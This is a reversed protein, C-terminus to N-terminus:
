RHFRGAICGGGFTAPGEVEVGPPTVPVMQYPILKPGKYEHSLDYYIVFDNDPQGLQEPRDCRNRLFLDVIEEGGNPTLVKTRKESPDDHRRSKVIVQDGPFEILVQIFTAFRRPQGPDEGPRGLFSMPSTVDADAVAFTGNRITFDAALRVLDESPRRPPDELYAPDIVQSGPAIEAMDTMRDWFSQHITIGGGDNGDGDSIEIHEGDLDWHRGQPFTLRPEHKCVKIKVKEAVRDVPQRVDPILIRMTNPAQEPQPLFASLGQIMLRIKM